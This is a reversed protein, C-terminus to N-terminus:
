DGVAPQQVVVPTLRSGRCPGAVCEGSALDFSAGHAACILLYGERLFRGPAYDLRRGQHPCENLWAAIKGQRRHLIIAVNEGGILADVACISDMEMLQGYILSSSVSENAPM